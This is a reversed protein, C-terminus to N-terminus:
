NEYRIKGLFNLIGPLIDKMPKQGQDSLSSGGECPHRVRYMFCESTKNEKYKFVGGRCLFNM